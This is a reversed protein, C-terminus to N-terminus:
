GVNKEGSIKTKANKFCREKLSSLTNYLIDTLRIFQPIYAPLPMHTHTYTRAKWLSKEKCDRPM